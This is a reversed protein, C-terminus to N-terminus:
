VTEGPTKYVGGCIRHVAYVLSHTFFGDEHSTVDHHYDIRLHVGIFAVMRAAGPGADQGARRLDRAVGHHGRHVSDPHVARHQDPGEGHVAVVGAIRDLDVSLMGTPEAQDLRDVRRIRPDRLPP